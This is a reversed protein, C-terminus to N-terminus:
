GFKTLLVLNVCKSLHLVLNIYLKSTPNIGFNVSVQPVLFMNLGKKNPRRQMHMNSKHSTAHISMSSSQKNPQAM